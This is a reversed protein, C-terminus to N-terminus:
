TLRGGRLRRRGRGERQVGPRAQHGAPRPARRRGALLLQRAELVRARPQRRAVEGEALSVDQHTCRDGIAYVTTASACSPWPSTASSSASPRATPSTTSHLLGARADRASRRPRPAGRHRGRVLPVVAAAPLAELVEDFFGARGPARRGRHARRPERPLLAPGRRDPRGHLRPQLARRQDRDRPEARVRGLRRRLAEPQPQDPLRQHRPREERGQHPRHLRLPEPEGVAGKFLLNSTTDPAAHEQFTRFDLTQNGEGFYLAQLNGTAGRGVLRCDTRTRAYDGGLGAQASTLTAATDVRSLQSAVQWVRPGRLQVNTYGLRAARHVDLEIVPSVLAAVDASGHWDLVNLEADEGARVVLRPWVAVGDADVWDVVVVPRDIAVGAPVSVLVPDAHRADNLAAFVDPGDGAVAGLATDASPGDVLRGAFLGKAEYAPAIEAHVVFGNRVVVTAAREPLAALVEAVADPIGAAPVDTVPAWAALDIDDVRSYRWVEEDTSPMTPEGLREAVARRREDLWAPAPSALPADPPPTM